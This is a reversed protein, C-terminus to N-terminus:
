IFYEPYKAKAEAVTPITDTAEILISELCLSSNICYTSIALKTDKDYFSNIEPVKDFDELIYYIFLGATNQYPLKGFKEFAKQFTLYFLKPNDPRNKNSYLYIGPQKKNKTM